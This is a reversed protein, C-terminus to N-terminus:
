IRKSLTRTNWDFRRVADAAEYRALNQTKANITELLKGGSSVVVVYGRKKIWARPVIKIELEGSFKPGSM